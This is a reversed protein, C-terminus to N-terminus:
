RFLKLKEYYQEGGQIIVHNKIIEQILLDEKNFDGTKISLKEHLRALDKKAKDDLNYIYIDIDSDEKPSFKAYSGFLIIMRGPMKETIENFLPELTEYKRLLKALKYNEANLTYAKAVIGNKIFYVHNKGEIRYDLVNAQRLESLVSQVRTLSAKLEKALERGHMEKKLLCLLAEFVYNVKIQTMHNLYFDDSNLHKPIRHSFTGTFLILFVRHRPRPSNEIKDVVFRTKDYKMM